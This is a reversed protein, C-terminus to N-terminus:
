LSNLKEIVANFLEMEKPDTVEYLEDTGADLDYYSIYIKEKGDDDKSGDGYAVYGRNREKCKFTFYVDCIVNQGDIILDLKDQIM